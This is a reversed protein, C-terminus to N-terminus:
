PHEGPGLSAANTGYLIRAPDSLARGSEQLADGALRLSQATTQIEQTAMDASLRLQVSLGNVERNMADLTDRATALTVETQTAVRSLHANAERMVQSAEGGLSEVRGAAQRTSALTANLEPMTRHLEGTLMNLNVLVGSLNKLNQDSLVANFRILADRGVVSMDELTNAVRALQPVGEQIVPYKEGDPVQMLPANGDAANILDIAALGTVLHRAVEAVAGEFVPTRADVQLIVRVRRAEGPLIAYDQVKGVKIGQMRVDSNIQLGELSQKEFYVTYRNIQQAEAGGTLWVMGGVLLAVLALVGVGVWAYRVEPEM